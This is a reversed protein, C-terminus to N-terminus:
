EQVDDDRHGRGVGGGRKSRDHTWTLWGTAGRSCARGDEDRLLHSRSPSPGTWKRVYPAALPNEHASTSTLTPKQQSALGDTNPPHFSPRM